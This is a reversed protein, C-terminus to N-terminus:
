FTVFDYWERITLGSDHISRINKPAKLHEFPNTTIEELSGRMEIAILSLLSSCMGDSIQVYHNGNYYFHFHLMPAKHELSTYSGIISDGNPGESGIEVTRGATEGVFDGDNPSSIFTTNTDYLEFVEKM